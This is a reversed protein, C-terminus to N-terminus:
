IDEEKKETVTIIQRVCAASLEILYTVVQKQAAAYTSFITQENAPLDSKIVEATQGSLFAIYTSM